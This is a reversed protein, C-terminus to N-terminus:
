REDDDEVMAGPGTTALRTGTQVTIGARSRFGAVYELLAPGRPQMIVELPQVLKIVSDGSALGTRKDGLDISLYRM